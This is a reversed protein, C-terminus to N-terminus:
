HAGQGSPAYRQEPPFVPTRSPRKAGRIRGKEDRHLRIASTPRSYTEWRITEQRTFGHGIVQAV